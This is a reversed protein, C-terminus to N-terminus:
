GRISELQDIVSSDDPDSTAVELFGADELRLAVRAHTAIARGRKLWDTAGEVAQVQELVAGVAEASSVVVVPRAGTAVWGRLRAREREPLRHPQREYVAMADVEADTGRFQDIIWDRGTSARLLLVRRARRGTACWARWFGESGSEDTDDPAVVTAAAAGRLEARAAERTSAGVAGIVTGAPWDASLREAVAHVANPSVFLALDYEAIRALASRVGAEDAPPAIEFAPWWVADHGRQRLAAVLRRGPAAPRTVIVPGGM